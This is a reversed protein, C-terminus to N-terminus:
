QSKKDSKKSRKRRHNEIFNELLPHVDYYGKGNYKMVARVRLLDYLAIKLDPNERNGDDIDLLIDLYDDFTIKLDDIREYIRNSFFDKYINVAKEMSKSSIKEGNEIESAKNILSFLERLSGGSYKIATEYCKDEFLNLDIRSEIIRKMLKMNDDIPNRDKDRIKIMYMIEPKGFINDILAYDPHYVLEIPITLIFSARLMNIYTSNRIYLDRINYFPLKELDDIIILTDKGTISKLYDFLKNCEFILDNLKREEICSSITKESRTFNMENKASFFIGKLFELGFSISKDNTKENEKVNITEVSWKKINEIITNLDDNPQEFYRNIMILNIVDEIIEFLLSEISVNDQRIRSIVSFPIINFKDQVKEYLKILETTKGCGTFGAFLIKAYPNLPNNMKKQIANISYNERLENTDVYFKNLKEGILQKLETVYFMENVTTAKKIDITTYNDPLSYGSQIMKITDISLM